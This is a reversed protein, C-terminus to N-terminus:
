GSREVCRRVAALDASSGDDSGLRVNLLDRSRKEVEGLLQCDRLLTYRGHSIRVFLRGKGQCRGALISKVSGRSVQEGLLLEVRAHVDRARLGLPEAHLVQVVADRISGFPRRGDPAPGHESPMHSDAKRWSGQTLTNLLGSTFPNSLWEVLDM